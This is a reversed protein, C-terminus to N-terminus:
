WVFCDLSHGKQPQCQLSLICVIFCILLNHLTHALVLNWRCFPRLSHPSPPSPNSMAATSLSAWLPMGPPPFLRLWCVLCVSFCTCHGTTPALRSYGFLLFAQAAVAPHAPLGHSLLDCIYCLVPTRTGPPSKSAGQIVHCTMPPKSCLFSM